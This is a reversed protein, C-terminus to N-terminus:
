SANQLYEIEFQQRSIIQFHLLLRAKEFLQRISPRLDLFILKIKKRMAINSFRVLAGIASSDLRVLMGCDFAILEPEKELIERWIVEVEKIDNLYFEGNIQLIIIKNYEQITCDIM